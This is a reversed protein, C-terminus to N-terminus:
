VQEQFFLAMPGGVTPAVIALDRPPMFLVPPPEMRRGEIERRYFHLTLLFLGAMANLVNQLSAKEFYSSRQHKVKNHATWWTPTKDCRWNQWPILELGHRPLRVVSVELEPIACRMVKRYKKISNAKAARDLRRCLQRAIVDVESSAALLLHAIQISHTPFNQTTFEIFRSLRELDAELALFYNWHLLSNTERIVVKQKGARLLGIARDRSSSAGCVAKAIQGSYGHRTSLVRPPGSQLVFRRPIPLQSILRDNGRFRSDVFEQSPSPGRSECPHCIRTERIRLPSQSSRPGLHSHVHNIPKRSRSRRLNRCSLNM